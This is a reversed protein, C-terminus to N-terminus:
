ASSDNPSVGAGEAGTDERGVSGDRDLSRLLSDTAPRICDVLSEFTVARHGQDRVAEEYKLHCAQVKLEYQRVQLFVRNRAREAADIQRLPNWWLSGVLSALSTGSGGLISAISAGSGAGDSGQWVLKWFAVVIGAVFMAGLVLAYGMYRYVRWRASSRIGSVTGDPDEAAARAMIERPVIRRKLEAVEERLQTVLRSDAKKKKESMTRGPEYEDPLDKAVRLVGSAVAAWVLERDTM